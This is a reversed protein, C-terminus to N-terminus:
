DCRGFYDFFTMPEDYLGSLSTGHNQMRMSDDHSINFIRESNHKSIHVARNLRMVIITAISTVLVVLVVLIIITIQLMTPSSEQNESQIFISTITPFGCAITLASLSSAVVSVLELSLKKKKPDIDRDNGTIDEEPELVRQVLQEINQEKVERPIYLNAVFECILDEYFNSINSMDKRPIEYQRSISAIAAGIVTKNPIGSNAIYPRLMDLVARNAASVRARYANNRGRVLIKSTIFYVIIGSIIGTIIGIAWNEKTLM